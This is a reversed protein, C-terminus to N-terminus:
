LTRTISPFSIQNYYYETYGDPFIFETVDPSFDPSTIPGYWVQKMVNEARELSFSPMVMVRNGDKEVIDAFGTIVLDSTTMNANYVKVPRNLNQNLTNELTARIDTIQFIVAAQEPLSLEYRLDVQADGDALLNVTLSKITLAQVPTTAFVLICVCALLLYTRRM